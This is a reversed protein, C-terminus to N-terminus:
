TPKASRRIPWSRGSREWTVGVACRHTERISSKGLFSTAVPIGILDALEEVEEFARGCRVGQRGAIMVPNRAALLSEAVRDADAPSICPASTNLHGSLPHLPPKVTKPDVSEFAVNWKILVAAPGPRGTTAHKIAM